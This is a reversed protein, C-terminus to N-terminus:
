KRPSPEFALGQAPKLLFDGFGRRAPQTPVQYEHSTGILLVIKKVM